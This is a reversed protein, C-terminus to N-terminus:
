RSAGMEELLRDASWVRAGLGLVLDAEARDHTVVVVQARDTAKYVLREILTDATQPPPAYRVMLPGSERRLFREPGDFVVTVEWDKAAAALELRQLFQEGPGSDNGRVLRLMRLTNDGDVILKM